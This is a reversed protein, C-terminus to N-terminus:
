YKRSDNETHYILACNYNDELKSSKIQLSNQM